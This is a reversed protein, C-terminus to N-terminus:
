EISKLSREMNNRLVKMEIPSLAADAVKDLNKVLEELQDKTPNEFDIDLKKFHDQVTPMNQEYGGMINCFTNIISDQALMMPPLDEVKKAIDYKLDQPVFKKNVMLSGIKTFAEEVSDGTKASTVYFPSEFTDAVAMVAFFGYEPDPLDSKNALFLFSVEETNEFVLELWREFNVLSKMNTLDCVFIVGNAGKLSSKIVSPFVRQGMIDWIQLVSTVDRGDRVEIIEKTYINTGLTKLYKEDFQSHVYRMVLSTKGVAADGLLVVKYKRKDEAM